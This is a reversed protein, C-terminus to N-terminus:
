STKVLLVNLTAFEGFYKIAAQNYAWAAEVRTTFLGLYICKKNVKIQATWKQKRKDWHVGKYGSKTNLKTKRNANNQSRTALRLRDTIGGHNAHDIELDGPDIGTELFYVIRHTLYREYKFHVSYRNPNGNVKSGARAGLKRGHGKKIWILGSPSDKSLAVHEKLDDPLPKAM